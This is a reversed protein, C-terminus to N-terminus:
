NPLETSRTQAAVAPGPAPSRITLKPCRRTSNDWDVDVSSLRFVISLEFPPSDTSPGAEAALRPCGVEPM